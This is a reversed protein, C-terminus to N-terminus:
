GHRLELFSAWSVWLLRSDCSDLGIGLPEELSDRGIFVHLGHPSLDLSSIEEGFESTVAAHDQLRIRGASQAILPHDQIRGRGLSPQAIGPCPQRLTPVQSRKVVASTMEPDSFDDWDVRM